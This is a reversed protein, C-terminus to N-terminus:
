RHLDAPTNANAVVRAPVAVEVRDLQALARRVAREGTDYVAEIVPRCRSIRWAACLPEVRDGAAVAVAPPPGGSTGAAAAVLATIVEPEIWALDTALIVVLDHGAGDFAALIGALPGQGQRPDARAELGRACLADLDGGVAHVDDAGAARLADSVRVALPRGDVEVLAKDAGMRRSQGGTLVAGSFPEM